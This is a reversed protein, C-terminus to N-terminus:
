YQLERARENHYEVDEAFISFAECLDEHLEEALDECEISLGTAQSAEEYLDDIWTEYDYEFVQFEEKKNTNSLDKWVESVIENYFNYFEKYIEENYNEKYIYTYTM